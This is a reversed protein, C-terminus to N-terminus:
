AHHPFRIRILDLERRVREADRDVFEAPIVEAPKFFSAWVRALRSIWNTSMVRYDSYSAQEEIALQRM